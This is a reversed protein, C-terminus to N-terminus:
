TTPRSCTCYRSFRQRTGTGFMKLSTIIARTMYSGRRVAARTATSLGTSILSYIMESQNLIAVSAPTTYKVATLIFYFPLATGLTGIIFFSPALKKDFLVATQASAMVYPLFFLVALVSGAAVLAVPSIYPLSFRGVVSSFGVIITCLWISLAPNLKNM